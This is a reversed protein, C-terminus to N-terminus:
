DESLNISQPKNSFNFAAFIGNAGETRVTLMSKEEIAETHIEKKRFSEFAGERRLKLLHKYFEFIDKKATNDRFDWNLKSHMFTETSQPDPFDGEHSLFYEFERKRGEQVAKVLKEDGHSIFYQFPNDEGF